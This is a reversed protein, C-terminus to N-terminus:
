SLKAATADHYWFATERFTSAQQVWWDRAFTRENHAGAQSQLPSEVVSGARLAVSSGLEPIVVTIHGSRSLDHNQACIIGITGDNVREQLLTLDFARVWGFEDGWDILWDFLQNATQERISSGYAATVSHGSSLRSIARSTWWVRPLYAQGLYCCDYAYINCFTSENTPRYRASQEVDLYDVIARLSQRRAAPEAGPDLRPMDPERLACARGAVSDRRASRNTLHVSSLKSAIPLPTAEGTPQLYSSSVFGVLEQGALQTRIKSWERAPELMEVVHGQPLVALQNNPLKQPSSRLNLASATVVHAVQAM